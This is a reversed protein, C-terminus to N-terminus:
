INKIVKCPNGVAVCNSPIDKTVVSGSGIVVNDGITVGPNIIAGGGIWVNDGITVPSGYEIGSIRLKPDIPHYATYIQVNPALMANKGIKIECVDLMICDFNAYFNEGLHINYGYDCKFSPEIYVNEGTSGLLKRLIENKTYDDTEITQNYLRTLIRAQQRDKVLEPDSAIYGDGKLMKEKETM